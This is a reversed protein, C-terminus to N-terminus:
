LCLSPRPLGFGARRFVFDAVVNLLGIICILCPGLVRRHQELATLCPGLVCNHQTAFNKPGFGRQALRLMRRHQDLATRCLRLVCIHQAVDWVFWLTCNQFLYHLIESIGIGVPVLVYLFFWDTMYIWYIHLYLWSMSILFVLAQDRFGVACQSVQMQMDQRQLYFSPLCGTIVSYAFTILLSPFNVLAFLWQKALMDKILIIWQEQQAFWVNHLFLLLCHCCISSLIPVLVFVMLRCIQTESFSDECVPSCLGKVENWGTQLPILHWCICHCESDHIQAHLKALRLSLLFSPCAWNVANDTRAKAQVSPTRLMSTHHRTRYTQIVNTPLQRSILIEHPCKCAALEWLLPTFVIPQFGQDRDDGGFFFPSISHTCLLSLKWILDLNFLLPFPATLGAEWLDAGSGVYTFCPSPRSWLHRLPFSIHILSLLVLVVLLGWLPILMVSFWNYWVVLNVYVRLLLVFMFVILFSDTFPCVLCGISWGWAVWLVSFFTISPLCNMRLLHSFPVLTGPICLHCSCSSIRFCIRFPSTFFSVQAKSRFGELHFYCSAALLTWVAGSHDTFYCPDMALQSLDDVCVNHAVIGKKFALSPKLTALRCLRNMWHLSVFQSCIGLNSCGLVYCLPSFGSRGSCISFLQARNLSQLLNLSSETRDPPKKRRKSLM